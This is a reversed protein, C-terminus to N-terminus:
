TATSSSVLAARAYLVYLRFYLLLIAFVSTSYFSRCHIQLRCSWRHSGQGVWQKLIKFPFELSLFYLKLHVKINLLTAYVAHFHCNTDFLYSTQLNLERVRVITPYVSHKREAHSVGAM